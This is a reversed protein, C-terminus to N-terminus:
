SNDVASNTCNQSDSIKQLLTIGIFFITFVYPIYSTKVHLFNLSIYFWSRLPNELIMLIVKNYAQTKVKKKTALMQGQHKNMIM